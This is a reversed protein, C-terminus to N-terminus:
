QDENANSIVLMPFAYWCWSDIIWIKFFIKVTTMLIFFLFFWNNNDQLLLFFLEAAEKCMCAYCPKLVKNLCLPCDFHNLANLPITSCSRLNRSSSEAPNGKKACILKWINVMWLICFKNKLIACFIYEQESTNIWIAWSLEECHLIGGHVVEANLTLTLWSTLSYVFGCDM